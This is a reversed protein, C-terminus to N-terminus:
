AEWSQMCVYNRDIKEESIEEMLNYIENQTSVLNYALVKKNLTREDSIIMAMYRGIDRLDTLATPMNGDGIIEDNGSTMAYDARGSILRPYALQYWWGVDVITYPLWMQRIQNYVIEKQFCFFSLVSCLAVGAEIRDRVEDRLWMVGGPPAVTIFGCPIFRKVGVRKAAKALPIQDQQEAPGVCSIVVDIDALAEILHEESAKLDCKRIQM